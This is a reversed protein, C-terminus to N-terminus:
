ITLQKNSSLLEMFTDTDRIKIKKGAGMFDALNTSLEHVPKNADIADSLQKHMTDFALRQQIFTQTANRDFVDVNQKIQQVRYEFVEKVRQSRRDAKTNFLDAKDVAWILVCSVVSGLIVEALEEFPGLPLQLLYSTLFPTVISIFVKVLADGKQAPTMENSPKKLIKFAQIIAHMGDAVLNMFKKLLGTFFLPLSKFFEKVLTQIINDAIEKIAPWIRQKLYRTMRRIRAKLAAMLSREGVGSKFGNLIMDKIEYIAIKIFEAVGMRIAEKASLTKLQGGINKAARGATKWHNDRALQRIHAEIDDKAKAERAEFRDMAEDSTDVLSQENSGLKEGRQQKEIATQRMKRVTAIDHESKANNLGQTILAINQEHDGAAKVMDKDVFINKGFEVHLAKLAVVHDAEVKQKHGAGRGMADVRKQHYARKGEIESNVYVRDGDGFVKDRAQKTASKKGSHEYEKRKFKGPMESMRNETRYDNSRDALAAEVNQETEYKDYSFDNIAEWIVAGSLFDNVATGGTGKEFSVSKKGKKDQLISVRSLGSDVMSIVLPKLLTEVTSGGGEFEEYIEDIVKISSQQNHLEISQLTHVM